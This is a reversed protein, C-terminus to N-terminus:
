QDARASEAKRGAARRADEVYRGNRIRVVVLALGSLAFAFGTLAFTRVLPNNFNDRDRYDMIHLMWFFDYFRWLRNRRVVVDGTDPSVYLRTEDPDDFTVRWLPGRGAAEHPPNNIYNTDLVADLGAFDAVAVRRAEAASIPSLREGSDADFIAAGAPGKVLYIERGLWSKLTVESAGDFAAVVGAPPFYNQVELEAPASYAIANEGRVWKIPLLSMVVGSAMWLVIQIVLFLGLWRHLHQVARRLKM